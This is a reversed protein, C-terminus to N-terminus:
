NLLNISVSFRDLPWITPYKLTQLYTCMTIHTKYSNLRSRANVCFAFGHINYVTSQVRKHLFRSRIVCWVLCLVFLCIASM